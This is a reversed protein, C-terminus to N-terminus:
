GPFAGEVSEEGRDVGPLDADPPAWLEWDHDRYVRRWSTGPLAAALPRDRGVLVLDAGSSTLTAEFGPAAEYMANVARAYEATYAVEYRSDLGVRVAPGLRWMAYSGADFSTALDGRWGLAALRDCAGVPFSAAPVRVRWPAQRAADVALAAGVVLAAALWAGNARAWARRVLDGLPTPALWGPVFALWVVAWVTVHRIHLCSQLALFVLLLAGRAGRGAHAVGYVALAVSVGWGLKTPLHPETWLPGWETIEPRPLLLARVLYVAYDPGWPNLLLVVAAAAAATAGLHLARARDFAVREVLHLALAVGAVAFGGHLNQWVVLLGLLGVSVGWRGGRREADLLGLWAALAAMTFLQARITTFGIDMLMVALPAAVVLLPGAGRRWAVWAPGGVAALVLLGKFAAVAAAGGGWALLLLVVGFGWEHHVIPDVTSAYSFPDGAPLAGRAFIERALAMEHFADLDAVPRWAARELAFAAVAAVVAGVRAGRWAPSM